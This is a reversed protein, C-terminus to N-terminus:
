ERDKGVGASTLLDIFVRRATRYTLPLLLALTNTFFTNSLVTKEVVEDHLSRCGVIQAAQLDGEGSRGRAVAM